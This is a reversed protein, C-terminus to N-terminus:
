YLTYIEGNQADVDVSWAYKKDPGYVDVHWVLRNNPATHLKTPTTANYDMFGEDPEHLFNNVIDRAQIATINTKTNNNVTQNKHQTENHKFTGSHTTNTINTTNNVTPTNQTSLIYAAGAIIVIVIVILAIIKKDINEGGEYIIITKLSILPNKIFPYVLFFSDIYISEM